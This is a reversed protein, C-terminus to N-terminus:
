ALQVFEWSVLAPVTTGFLATKHWNFNLNLSLAWCWGGQLKGPCCARPCPHIFILFASQMTGDLSCSQIRDFFLKAVEARCCYFLNKPVCLKWVFWFSGPHHSAFDWIKVQTLKPIENEMRDNQTHYKNYCPRLETKQLGIWTPLLCGKANNNLLYNTSFLIECVHVCVCVCVCLLCTSGQGLSTKRDRLFTFFSHNCWRELSARDLRPRQLEEQKERSPGHYSGAWARM